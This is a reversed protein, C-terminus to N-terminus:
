GAGLDSVEHSAGHSFEDIRAGGAVLDCSDPVVEPVRAGVTRPREVTHLLLPVDIVEHGGRLAPRIM